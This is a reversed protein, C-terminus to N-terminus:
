DRRCGALSYCALYSSPRFELVTHYKRIGQGNNDSVSNRSCPIHYFNYFILCVCAETCKRLYLTGLIACGKWDHWISEVLWIKSLYFFLGVVYRLSIAALNFSIQDLDIDSNSWEDKLTKHWHAFTNRLYCSRFDITIKPYSHGLILQNEVRM